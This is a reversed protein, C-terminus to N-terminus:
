AVLSKLEEILAPYNAVALEKGSKVGHAGLFAAVVDRGKTNSLALLHPVLDATYTLAPAAEAQTEAPTQEASAPEQKAPAEAKPKAKVKPTTPEPQPSSVALPTARDTQQSAVLAEIAASLRDISQELSM